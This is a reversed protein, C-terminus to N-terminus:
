LSEATDQLVAGYDAEKNGARAVIDALTQDLTRRLSSLGDYIHGTSSKIESTVAEIGDHLAAIGDADPGAGGSKLPTGATGLDVVTSAFSKMTGMVDDSLSLIGKLREVYINNEVESERVRQEMKKLLSNLAEISLVVEAGSVTSVASYADESLKRSRDLFDRLREGILLFSGETGAGLSGIEEACYRLRRLCDKLYAESVGDSSAGAGALKTQKEV